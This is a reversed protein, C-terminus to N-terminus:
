LQAIFLPDKEIVAGLGLSLIWGGMRAEPSNLPKQKNSQKNAVSLLCASLLPFNLFGKSKVEGVDCIRSLHFPHTGGISASHM